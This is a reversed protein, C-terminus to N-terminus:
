LWVCRIWRAQSDWSQSGVTGGLPEMWRQTSQWAGCSFNGKWCVSMEREELFITDSAISVHLAHLRNM